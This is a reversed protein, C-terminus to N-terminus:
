KIFCVDKTVTPRYLNLSQSSCFNQNCYFCFTCNKNTFLLCFDLGSVAVCCIQTSADSQNTLEPSKTAVHFRPDLQPGWALFWRLRTLLREIKPTGKRGRITAAKFLLWLLMLQSFFLLWADSQLFVTNTKQTIGNHAIPECHTSASMM